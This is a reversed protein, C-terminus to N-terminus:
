QMICANFGPVRCRQIFSPVNGINLILMPLLFREALLMLDQAESSLGTELFQLNM